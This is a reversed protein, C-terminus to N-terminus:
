SVKIGKFKPRVESGFFRGISEAELMRRFLAEPVDQYRYVAGSTFAVELIGSEFGVSAITSSVVATRKM